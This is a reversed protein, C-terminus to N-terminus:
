SKLLSESLFPPNELCVKFLLHAMPVVQATNHAYYEVLDGNETILKVQDLASFDDLDKPGRKNYISLGYPISVDLMVSLVGANLNIKVGNVFSIYRDKEVHLNGYFERLLVALPKGFIIKRTGLHKLEFRSQFEDRIGFNLKVRESARGVGIDVKQVSSQEDGSEVTVPNGETDSIEEDRLGKSKLHSQSDKDTIRGVQGKAHAKQKKRM